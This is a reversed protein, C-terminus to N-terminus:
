WYRSVLNCQESYSLSYFIVSRCTTFFCYHNALNFQVSCRTWSLFFICKLACSADGSHERFTVHHDFRSMGHPLFLLRNKYTYGNQINNYQVKKCLVLTWIAQRYNLQFARMQPTNGTKLSPRWGQQTSACTDKFPRSYASTWFQLAAFSRKYKYSKM